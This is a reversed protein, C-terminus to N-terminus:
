IASPNCTTPSRIVCPLNLPWNVPDIWKWDESGRDGSMFMKLAADVGMGSAMPVQM